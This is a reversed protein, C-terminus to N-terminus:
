DNRIQIKEEYYGNASDYFDDDLNWRAGVRKEERKRDKMVNSKNFQKAYKAVPNRVKM